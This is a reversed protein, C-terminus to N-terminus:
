RPNPSCRGQVGLPRMVWGTERRLLCLLAQRSLSERVCKKSPKYVDDTFYPIYVNDLKWESKKM